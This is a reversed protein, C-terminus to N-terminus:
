KGDKTRESSDASCYSRPSSQSRLPSGVVDVVASREVVDVVVADVRSTHYDVAVTSDADAAVVVVVM